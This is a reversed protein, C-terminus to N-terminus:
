HTTSLTKNLELDQLEINIEEYISNSSLLANIHLAMKKTKNNNNNNALALGSFNFLHAYHHQNALGEGM